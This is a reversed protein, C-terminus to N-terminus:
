AIPTTLSLIPNTGANTLAGGIRSYAVFVTELKQLLVDDSRRISIPGDTRLLYGESFDGYLIGTATATTSTNVASPLAQNLVIPRGLIHDLVNTNPNPTWFPRGYQDKQGVLYARTSSNLVWSAGQEYAPDLIGQMGVFDDFVPGVQGTQLNAGASSSTGTATVGAVAGTKLSAVNSGNGNTILTELGRYYRIGFQKRIWANLDFASDELEQYSMTVMTAITDTSLVFGNFTPDAEGILTAEGTMTVLVNGTDNVTAIKMPAGNNNTVKKGVISVTNGVLKRAEILTTDFLQPIVFGGNTNGSAGTTTIDRREALLTREESTLSDKGYRIYKEFARSISEDHQKDGTEGGPQPRPPRETQRLEADIKDLRQQTTIDEELADVDAMIAKVKTRTEATVKEASMLTQAETFLRNRQEQMELLKPM